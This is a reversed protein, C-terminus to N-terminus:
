TNRDSFEGQTESDTKLDLFAVGSKNVSQYFGNLVKIGILLSVNSKEAEFNSCLCAETAKKKRSFPRVPQLKGLM